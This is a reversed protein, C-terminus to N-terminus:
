RKQKKLSKARAQRYFEKKSIKELHDPNV